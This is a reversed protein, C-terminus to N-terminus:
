IFKNLWNLQKYFFNIKIFQVSRQNKFKLPFRNSILVILKDNEQSYSNFKNIIEKARIVQGGQNAALLNLLIKM